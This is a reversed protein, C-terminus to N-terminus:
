SDQWRISIPYNMDQTPVSCGLTQPSSLNCSRQAAQLVHLVGLSMHCQANVHQLSTAHCVVCMPISAAISGKHGIKDCRGCCANRIPASQTAGVAGEQRCSMQISDGASHVMVLLIKRECPFVSKMYSRSRRHDVAACQSSRYKLSAVM